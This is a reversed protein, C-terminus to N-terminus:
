MCTMVVPVVYGHMRRPTHPARSQVSGCGGWKEGFVSRSTFHVMGAGGRVCWVACTVPVGLASRGTAMVNTFNISHSNESRSRLLEAVLAGLYPMTRRRNNTNRGCLHRPHQRAKARKRVTRQRRAVKPENARRRLAYSASSYRDRRPRAEVTVTELFQIFSTFPTHRCLM